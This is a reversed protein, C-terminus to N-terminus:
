KSRDLEKIVEDTVDVSPDIYGIVDPDTLIMSFGHRQAVTRLSEDARQMVFHILRAEELRIDENSETVLRDHKEYQAQLKADLVQQDSRSLGSGGLKGKFENITRASDRIQRDKEQGLRALDAQATKGIRSEDLIRQPNVFGIKQEALAPASTMLLVLGLVVAICSRM